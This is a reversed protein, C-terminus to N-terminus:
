GAAKAGIRIIVGTLAILFPTKAEEWHRLAFFLGVLPILLCGIGWLISNQFAKVVLWIGGVLSLVVGLMAIIEM